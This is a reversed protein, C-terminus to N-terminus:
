GTSATHRPTCAPKTVRTPVSTVVTTILHCQSARRLALPPPSPFLLPVWAASLGLGAWVHQGVSCVWVRCAGACVSISPCGGVEPCLSGTGRPRESASQQELRDTGRTSSMVFSFKSYSDEDSRFLGKEWIFLLVSFALLHSNEAMAKSVDHGQTGLNSPVPPALRIRKTVQGTDQANRAGAYASPLTPTQASVCEYSFSFGM